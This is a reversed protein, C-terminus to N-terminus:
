VLISILHSKFASFDSSSSVSFGNQNQETKGMQNISRVLSDALQLAELM